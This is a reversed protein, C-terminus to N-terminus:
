VFTLNVKWYTQKWICRSDLYPVVVILANINDLVLINTFLFSYHIDCDPISSRKAWPLRMGKGCNREWCMGNICRNLPLVQSTMDTANWWSKVLKSLLDFPAAFVVRKLAMSISFLLQYSAALAPGVLGFQRTQERQSAAMHCFSDSDCWVGWRDTLTSTFHWIAEIM